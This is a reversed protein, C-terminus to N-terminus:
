LYPELRKILMRVTNEIHPGVPIWRVFENGHDDTKVVRDVVQPLWEHSQCLSATDILGVWARLTYEHWGTYHVGEVEVTMQELGTYGTGPVPDGSTDYEPLVGQLERRLDDWGLKQRLTKPAEPDDDMEALVDSIDMDMLCDWPLRYYPSLLSRIDIPPVYSLHETDRLSKARKAIARHEAIKDLLADRIADPADQIWRYVQRRKYGLDDALRPINGSYLEILEGLRQLTPRPQKM